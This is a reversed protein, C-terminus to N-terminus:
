MHGPYSGAEERELSCSFLLVSQLCVGLEGYQLRQLRVQGVELEGVGDATVQEKNVGHPM